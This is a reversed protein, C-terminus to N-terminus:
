SVAGAYRPLSTAVPLGVIRRAEDAAAAMTLSRMDYRERCRAFEHLVARLLALNQELHVGFNHPHWWLHFVEGRQAAWRVAARLRQMRTTELARVRPDYPRLFASARVDCLGNPQPIEHWKITHHGAFPVYADLWRSARRHQRDSQDADDIRWMASRPNGRYTTIGCERLVADYAPNRQNRPFVISRLQIGRSEAIARAALLDARFMDATQGPELCFYHSFTHSAIEQGRTQRIRDILSPAYHLPDAVENVGTPDLYPSLAANSYMPRLQPSYREREAQCRAFLFGVTAWTASVDFETLLDLLRPIARRAGLLNAGYGRAAYRHRVGWRLELDLSVVLAGEHQITARSM